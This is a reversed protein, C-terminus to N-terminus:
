PKVVVIDRTCRKCNVVTEGSSRVEVVTDNPPPPTPVSKGSGVRIFNANARVHTFMGGLMTMDHGLVMISPVGPAVSVYLSEGSLSGMADDFATRDFASDAFSADDIDIAFLYRPAEPM